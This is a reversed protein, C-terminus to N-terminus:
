SDWGRGFGDPFAGGNGFGAWFGDPPGMGGGFAGRGPLIWVGLFTLGTPKRFSLCIPCAREYSWVENVVLAYGKAGMIKHMQGAFKLVDGPRGGWRLLQKTTMANLLPLYGPFALWGEEFLRNQEGATADLARAVILREEYWEPCTRPSQDLVKGAKELLDKFVPWAEPKVTDAFGSGRVHWAKQVLRHAEAVQPVPSDPFAQQWAAIRERALEWASEEKQPGAAGGSATFFVTLAWDGDPFRLKMEQMRRALYELGAHDGRELAQGVVAALAISMQPYDLVDETAPFPSEKLSRDRVAGAIIEVYGEKKAAQGPKWFWGQPDWAQCFPYDTWAQRLAALWETRKGARELARARIYSLTGAANAKSFDFEKGKQAFGTMTRAEAKAVGVMAELSRDVFGVTAEHNGAELLAWGRSLEAILPDVGAEAAPSFGTGGGLTCVLAFFAVRSCRFSM